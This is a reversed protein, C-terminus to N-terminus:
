RLGTPSVVVESEGRQTFMGLVNRTSVGAAYVQGPRGLINWRQAFWKARELDRTWSLGRRRRPEAGRYVEMIETPATLEPDDSVFGAGRFMRVIEHVGFNSPFETDDWWAALLNRLREPSCRGARWEVWIRRLREGRALLLLTSDLPDDM